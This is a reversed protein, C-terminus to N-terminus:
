FRVNVTAAFRRGIPDYTSPFTNGSNQGTTGAASGVVPPAKNLINFATLTLQLEKTISFRASLDFYDFAPIQNFNATQGALPSPGSITGNFLNRSTATFGRAAFDDAQGEYKMAGIHRWLVSLDVDPFGFTVRQTWSWKPQLAGNQSSCNASYYGVCERNFGTPSARFQATRTWNGNLDYNFKFVDFDHRWGLKFDIGATALRGANTLPTPLGLIPNTATSTGSLRGNVVNRRIGTCAASTASAATITNFCAGLVDSSTASTIADNVRVDYYDISFTLNPIVDQPQIVLGVTFTDAKEPNLNPNGGGTANAQGASPNQILGIQAATAGQAICVATLNANGVPATGACPDVLLSTLGTSAPVFLEGINAARVARSYTGRFKLASIPAWTVGVKYTTAGKSLAGAIDTKSSSYRAGAQLTLEDFFPQDKAIPVALEGFVEKTAYGGSFATVAGGAGGLEGPIAALNDPARTASYKRYEGGVAFSVPESASPITFGFDGSLVGNVQALTSRNAVSSTVGGVFANMASSISGAPGFINLPVCGNATSTCATTSTALLAQQVRSNAYYGGRTEINESEGYSGSFDFKLTDTINFRAGATYDFVTTVYTSIRPGLEVARRYVGGLSLTTAANCLAVTAFGNAACVQDKITGTLYPNTPNINLVNGFIGSPAIISQTTNKSFMARSYVEISDSIEYRAAAYANYRRFPTQFINYPNFNFGNYFPVLATGAANIQIDGDSGPVVTAYRTDSLVTPTSTFSSGSAVGSTSSIGFISVPRDGQYIPDTEIYGIGLVANGRGDDFNAGMTLDVRLTNGDGKASIQESAQAAFGAFDRKTIFNVVGAIADAGYTSSAGGTLVEVRDVLALPINNLDVTGNFNAPVTRRGDLLILNRNSGLGRLNLTSGSSSQGNNVQQGNGPIVGPIERLIQEATNTQRLQLEESGVATIPSSSAINPNAILTGTVIITDEEAAAPAPTQAFAPASALSGAIITTALLNRRLAKTVM